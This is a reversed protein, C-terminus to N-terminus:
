KFVKGLVNDISKNVEESIKLYYVAGGFVMATLLGRLAINIFPHIDIPINVILLLTTIFVVTVYYTQLTFPQMKLKIFLLLYKLINFIIMSLLTALAAGALGFKPILLYNLLINVGGMVVLFVLNVKYYKSMAIISGNVGTVMDIVKGFGLLCVVMIEARYPEGNTMISYLDDVNTWILLFLFLGAIYQVVSSKQYLDELYPLDKREWAQSILPSSISTIAKRPVDIFEAMFVCFTYIAVSEASAFIGVMVIDVRNVLVYGWGGFLGYAGFNAMRKIRERTFHSYNFSFHLQGLSYIYGLQALVIGVWMMVVAKVIFDLSLFDFYYGLLLLPLVIKPLLNDFITPFVIREFNHIYHKLLNSWSILFVLPIAYPLYDNYWAPTKEDDFYDFVFNQTFFLFILFLLFGAFVALSLFTLFGNHGKEEDQFEPFFRIAVSTMGLMTFPVVLLAAAMIFQVLGYGEQLLPYLFLQSIAGIVIGAYSVISQKIGQREIVGM